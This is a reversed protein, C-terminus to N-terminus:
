GVEADAAGAVYIAPATTFVPAAVTGPRSKLTGGFLHVSEYRQAATPDRSVVLRGRTRVWRLASGALDTAAAASTLRLNPGTELAQRIVDADEWQTAELE